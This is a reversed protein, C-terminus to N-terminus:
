CAQTTRGPTDVKPYFYLVLPTGRFDGLTVEQGSGYKGGVASARFDPAPDGVKLERATM